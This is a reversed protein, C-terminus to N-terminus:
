LIRQRRRRRVRKILFMRRYAEIIKQWCLATERQKETLDELTMDKYPNDEEAEEVERSIENKISAYYRKQAAESLDNLNIRYEYGRRSSTKIKEANLLKREIRKKVTIYPVKELKAAESISVYNEITVM